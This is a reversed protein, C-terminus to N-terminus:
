RHHVIQSRVYGVFHVIPLHISQDRRCEEMGIQTMEQAIHDGQVYNQRSQLGAVVWGVHEGQVEERCDGAVDERVEGAVGGVLYGDAGGGGDVAEETSEDGVEYDVPTRQSSETRQTRLQATHNPHQSEETNNQRKRIRRITNIIQPM